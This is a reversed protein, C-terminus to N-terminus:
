PSQIPIKLTFCAGKETNSASLTGQLKQAIQASMYLGIGTGNEETKTTMDPKFIDDIIEPSIGGANDEISVIIDENKKGFTIYIDRQACDRENFADKANAIINLILHKFENEIGNIIIEKKSEVHVNINNRLLEDYILLLVSQICRKMGFPEIEKNPRFFTRFEGITSVMHQIQKQFDEVLEDIYSANVNGEKFDMQLLDAYMSLANLPQKWQHAVADMMEGMAAMKSQREIIQEKELRMKTEKAVRAELQNTLVNLETSKKTLITNQKKGVRVIEQHHRSEKVLLKKLTKIKQYLDQDTVKSDSLLEEILISINEQQM